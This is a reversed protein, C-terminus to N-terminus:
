SASLATYSVTYSVRFRGVHTVIGSAATAASEPPTPHTAGDREGLHLLDHLAAVTLWVGDEAGVREVTDDGEADELWQGLGDRHNVAVGAGLEGM